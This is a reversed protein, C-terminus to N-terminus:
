IFWNILLCLWVWSWIMHFALWFICVYEYFLMPDFWTPIFTLCLDLDIILIGSDFWTPILSLGLNIFMTVCVSLTWREPKGCCNWYLGVYKEFCLWSRHMWEVIMYSLYWIWLSRLWILTLSFSGIECGYHPVM